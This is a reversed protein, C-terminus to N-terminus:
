NQEVQDARDIVEVILAQPQIGAMKCIADADGQNITGKKLINLLTIKMQKTLTTENAEM